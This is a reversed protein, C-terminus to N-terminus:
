RRQMYADVVRAMAPRIAFDWEGLYEQAYGGTGVKFQLLGFLHDNPDLTDTIGRMDYTDAGSALADTIMRWQIANSPRLDRGATTSAGYSYWVHRNVRMTLTAAHVQGEHRALYLQIREPAEAHLSRYMRQFYPLGRPTFRDRRATEEYIQHFIALDDYGGVDVTVGLKAAKKINRRWLQNFGRLLTEETRGALPVQFVYRPQVDGFGAGSSKRQTWGAAALAESVELARQDSASPPLDRLGTAQGSAIAEKLTEASWRRTWIPPGMKVAFAGATRLRRLLPELWESLSYTQEPAGGLGRAAPGEGLWDIDPGEPLYALYRPLKPIQRYLVLGAGVLTDGDWWGLSENRWEAKVAGWAPVQLASIMGTGAARAHIYALHDAATIKSVTLAM